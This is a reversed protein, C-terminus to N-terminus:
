ALQRECDPTEGLMFSKMLRQVDEVPGVSHM